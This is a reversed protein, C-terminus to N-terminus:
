HVPGPNTMFRSLTSVAYALNLRTCVMLYMVSGIANSYPVKSMYEEVEKNALSKERSLIFHAGLPLSVSKSEHMSFRKLIKLMYSTQHLFLMSNLRDRVIEMGLIRKAMGLDKIDFEGGLTSKISNIKKLNPGILLMDDVYLLLFVYDDKNKYQFYLCHDFM